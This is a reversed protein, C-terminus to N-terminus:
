HVPLQPYRKRSIEPLIVFKLKEISFRTFIIDNGVICVDYMFWSHTIRLLSVRHLLLTSKYGVVGEREEREKGEEGEEGGSESNM